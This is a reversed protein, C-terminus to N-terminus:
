KNDRKELSSKLIFEYYEVMKIGIYTIPKYFSKTYKNNVIDVGYFDLILLVPLTPAYLALLILYVTVYGIFKIKM